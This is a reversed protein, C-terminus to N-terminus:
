EIGHEYMKLMDEFEASLGGITTNTKVDSEIHQVAVSGSVRDMMNRQYVSFLLAKDNKYVRKKLFPPRSFGAM